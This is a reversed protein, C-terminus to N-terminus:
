GREVERDDIRGMETLDALRDLAVSWRDADLATDVRLFERVAARLEGHALRLREVEDRLTSIDAGLILDEAGDREPHEEGAM